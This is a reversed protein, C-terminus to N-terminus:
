HPCLPGNVGFRILEKILLIESRPLWVSCLGKEFMEMEEQSEFLCFFAEPDSRSYGSQERIVNDDDDLEQEIWPEEGHSIIAHGSMFPLYRDLVDGATVGPGNIAYTLRIWRTKDFVRVNEHDDVSFTDWEEDLLCSAEFRQAVAIREFATYEIARVEYLVAFPRDSVYLAGRLVRDRGFSEVPYTFEHLEVAIPNGGIEVARHIRKVFDMSAFLCVWQGDKVTVGELGTLGEIESTTGELVHKQVIDWAKDNDVLKM